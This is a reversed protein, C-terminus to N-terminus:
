DWTEARSLSKELFFFLFFDRPYFFFFFISSRDIKVFSEVIKKRGPIVKKKKLFKVLDSNM